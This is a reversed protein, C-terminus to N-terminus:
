ESFYNNPNLCHGCPRFNIKDLLTGDFTMDPNHLVRYYEILLEKVPKKFKEDYMKLFAKLEDDNLGSDNTYINGHVYALFTLKGFRKIIAQKEPNAKFYKGAEKLLDDIKKELDSVSYNEKEEAGSNPREYSKLSMERNISFHAQLKEIFKKGDTELLNKFESFWVRFKKVEGEGREVIEFPIEFNIFKSHLRECTNDKHYSPLTEPYVYKFSDRVELPKYYQTSFNDPDRLFERIGKLMAIEKRHLFYIDKKYVAIEIENLSIESLTRVLKKSNSTTIYPM